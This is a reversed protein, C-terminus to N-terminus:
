KSYPRCHDVHVEFGTDRAAAPGAPRKPPPPTHHHPLAYFPRDPKVPSPLALPGIAKAFERPTATNENTRKRRRGLSLGEEHTENTPAHSSVLISNWNALRRISLCEILWKDRHDDVFRALQADYNL